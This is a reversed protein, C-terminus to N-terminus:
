CDAAVASYRTGVSLGTVYLLHNRDPVPDETWFSIYPHDTRAISIRGKLHEVAELRPKTTALLDSAGKHELMRVLCAYLAGTM